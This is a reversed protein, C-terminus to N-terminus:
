PGWESGASFGEGCFCGVGLSRILPLNPYVLSLQIVISLEGLVNRERSGRLILIM